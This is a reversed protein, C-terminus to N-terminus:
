FLVVSNRLWHKLITKTKIGMFYELRTPQGCILNEHCFYHKTLGWSQRGEIVCLQQLFTSSLQLRIHSLITCIDSDAVNRKRKKKSGFLGRRAVTIAKSISETSLCLSAPAPDLIKTLLPTCCFITGLVSTCAKHSSGIKFAFLLM